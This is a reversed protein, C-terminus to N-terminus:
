NAHVQAHKAYATCIIFLNYSLCVSSDIKFSWYDICTKQIIIIFPYAKSVQVSVTRFDREIM